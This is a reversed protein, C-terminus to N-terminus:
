WTLFKVKLKTADDSGDSESDNDIDSDEGLIEEYGVFEEGSSERNLDAFTRIAQAATEARNIDENADMRMM